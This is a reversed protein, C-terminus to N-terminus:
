CDPSIVVSGGADVRGSVSLCKVSGGADVNGKIDGCTASGSADVDGGVNGCKVSGGADVNGKIDGNVIVDGDCKLYNLPGEWVITVPQKSEGLDGAVKKGDIYITGKVVSISSDSPTEYTQGDITIHPGKM